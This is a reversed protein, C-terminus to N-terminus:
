IVNLIIIILVDNIYIVDKLFSVYLIEKFIYVGVEFFLLLM